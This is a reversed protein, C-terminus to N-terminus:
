SATLTGTNLSSHLVRATFQPRLASANLAIAGDLRLAVFLDITSVLTGKSSYVQAKLWGKIEAGELPNYQTSNGTLAATGLAAEITLPGVENLTFSLTVQDQTELTDYLVRKGPVPAFIDEVQTERSIEGEDVIGLNVWGTDASGPKSERGATGASPVTYAGGERFFQVHLGSLSRPITLM